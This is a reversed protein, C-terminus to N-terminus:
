ENNVTSTYVNGYRDAATVTITKWQPNVPKYLFMHDNNAAPECKPRKEWENNGQLLKVAQPDLLKKFCSNDVLMPEGNDETVEVRWDTNWMFINVLLNENDIQVPKMNEDKGFRFSAEEPLYIKIQYDRPTTWGQYYKNVLENGKFELMAFGRPSGDNNIDGNWFAGMAAPFTTETINPAINTTFSFHTHGSLIQVDHYDRVLAYLEECNDLKAKNVRRMTPIHLGILISKDKDVYALDKALWELQAETLAGEYDNRGKVGSYLVDDLVVIHWDGINCSYYNPGLADRFDRDSETDNKVKENHDHNGIVSLMPIDLKAINKKYTSYLRPNNWVIDGLSIGYVNGTFSHALAIMNDLFEEEWMQVDIADGIQIDAITFLKFEDSKERGKLDFNISAKSKSTDITKYFAPMGKQMPMECDSPLSVFLYQRGSSTLSYNGKADTSVVNIGDSVVVGERPSGDVTVRGTISVNKPQSIQASSASRDSAYTAYPLIALVAILLSIIRKIM